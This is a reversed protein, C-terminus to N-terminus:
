RLALATHVHVRKRHPHALRGEVEGYRRVESRRQHAQGFFLVQKHDCEVV